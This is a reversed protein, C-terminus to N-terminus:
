ESRHAADGALFIRGVRYKNALVREIVWHSVKLVEIDLGPIKLLNRIRATLTEPDDECFRAPDDLRLGFHLGWEECYRGWTPGLPVLSGSGMLTEGEPNIFAAILTRDDWYKSLDAKFHVSVVDVINTPGEMEIGLKPRVIGKGGEAAVVYQARYIKTRGDPGQVHVDVHDDNQSFDVVKHSFRINGPNRDEAVKRWIPESRSLPLNTPREPGVQRSFNTAYIGVQPIKTM